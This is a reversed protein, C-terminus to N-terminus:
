LRKAHLKQRCPGNGHKWLRQSHHRQSHHRNQRRNVRNTDLAQEYGQLRTNGLRIHIKSIDCYMIAEDNVIKGGISEIAPFDAGANACGEFTELMRDWHRGRWMHELDDGERIDNPTIRVAGKINHKAEHEQIIDVMTKCVEVAWKPNFTMPPLTFNVEPYVSGGGISM